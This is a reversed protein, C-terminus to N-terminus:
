NDIIVVFMALNQQLKYFYTVPGAKSKLVQEVTKNNKILFHGGALHGFLKVHVKDVRDTVWLSKQIKKLHIKNNKVAPM